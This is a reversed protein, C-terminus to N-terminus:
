DAAGSATPTATAAPAASPPVPSPVPSISPTPRAAATPRSTPRIRPLQTRASTAPAPPAATATGRALLAAATVPVDAVTQQKDSIKAVPQGGITIALADPRATRLLVQPRDAPVTYSEGQALEKQFLQIGSGDTIKVWVKPILATLVVPGAAAAVPPASALTASPTAGPLISPLEGGPAYYGRWFTVGAFIVAVAALASLWALRSSPVRAPDGPEFAPVGRLNRDGQGAGIEARVLAAIEDENEGVARAYSRSFGIAYTRAPLAAFDGKEIALLHREPIRTIAAVQVRSLGASERARALRIGVGDLPPEAADVTEDM